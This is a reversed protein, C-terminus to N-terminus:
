LENLVKQLGSLVVNNNSRLKQLSSQIGASHTQLFMSIEYLENNDTVGEKFRAQLKENAAKMLLSHKLNEEYHNSALALLNEAKGQYVTGYMDAAMTAATLKMKAAMISLDNFNGVQVDTMTKAMEKMQGFIQVVQSTEQNNKKLSSILEQATKM